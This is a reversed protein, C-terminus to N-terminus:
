KEAEIMLFLGYRTFWRRLFHRPWVRRAASLLAGRHRQGAAGELLDGVSLERRMVVRRFGVFLAQAEAPTYAKTGPSELYRDYIHSLPTSVRGRLLAYRIWLLYGVLSHRHYIMVRALGGTRLVRHVEHVARATDPTHHLVGWSYVIDFSRDAYPLDEADAVQLNSSLGASALRAGTFDLARWTLDIGVLTRPCAAAWRAHDVGTGVGIELVDRATGEDFRAFGSIYPELSYRADAQRELPLSREGGGYVEGCAAAEWFSRVAEKLMPTPGDAAMSARESEATTVRRM